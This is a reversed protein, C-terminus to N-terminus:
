QSACKSTIAGLNYKFEGKRYSFVQACFLEGHGYMLQLVVAMYLLVVHSDDSTQSLEDGM